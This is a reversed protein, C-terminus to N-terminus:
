GEHYWVTGSGHIVHPSASNFTNIHLTACVPAVPQNSLSANHIHVLLGVCGCFVDIKRMSEAWPIPNEECCLVDRRICPALVGLLPLLAKHWDEHGISNNYQGGHSLNEVSIHLSFERLVTTSTTATNATSSLVPYLDWCGAKLDSLGERCSHLADQGKLINSSKLHLMWLSESYELCSCKKNHLQIVHIPCRIWVLWAM